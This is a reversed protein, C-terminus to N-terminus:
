GVGGFLGPQDVSEFYLENDIKHTLVRLDKFEEKFRTVSEPDNLDFHICGNISVTSGDIHLFLQYPGLPPPIYHAVPHNKTERSFSPSPWEVNSKRIAYEGDKQFFCDFGIEKALALAIQDYLTPKWISDTTM